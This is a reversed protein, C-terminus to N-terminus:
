QPHTNKMCQAVNEATTHAKKSSMSDTYNGLYIWPLHTKILM